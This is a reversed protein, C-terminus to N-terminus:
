NTSHHFVADLGNDPHYSWSVSVTSGDETEFTDTQRGALANTAWISDKIYAPTGAADIICEVDYVTAGSFEEEGMMDITLTTGEDAVTVGEPNGCLSKADEFATFPASCGALSLTGVLAAAILGGRM